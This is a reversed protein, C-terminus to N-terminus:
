LRSNSSITRPDHHAKLGPPGAAAGLAGGPPPDSRAALVPLACLAYKHAYGRLFVGCQLNLRVAEAHTHGLHEATTNSM